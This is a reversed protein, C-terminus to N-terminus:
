RCSSVMLTGAIGLNGPSCYALFMISVDSINQEKKEKNTKVAFFSESYKNVFILINFLKGPYYIYYKM